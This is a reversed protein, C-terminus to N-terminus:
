TTELPNTAILPEYKEQYEPHKDLWVSYPFLKYAKNEESPSVARKREELYVKFKEINDTFEGEDIGYFEFFKNYELCDMLFDVLEIHNFDELLTAAIPGVRNYVQEKFHKEFSIAKNDFYERPKKFRIFNKLLSQNNVVNAKNLKSHDKDRYAIKIKNHERLQKEADKITLKLNFKTNIKNVWRKFNLRVQKWQKKSILLQTKLGKLSYKHLNEIKFGTNEKLTYYHSKSIGLKKLLQTQNYLKNNVVISKM